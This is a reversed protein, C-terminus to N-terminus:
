KLKISFACYNKNKEFLVWKNDQTLGLLIFKERIDEFNKSIAMQYLRTRALTSGEVYINAKPHHKMFMLATKAVTGLIKNTDENNTVVKDDIDHTTENYDGFALNYLEADDVLKQFQVQKKIVGKPGESIFEFTMLTDDFELDYSELRM